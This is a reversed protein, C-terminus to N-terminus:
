CSHWTASPGSPIFIERSKKRGTLKKVEKVKEEPTDEEEGLLLDEITYGDNVHDGGLKIDSDSRVEPASM